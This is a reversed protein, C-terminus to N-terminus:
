GPRTSRSWRAAWVRWERPPYPDNGRVGALQERLLLMALDNSTLIAARMAPNAALSVEPMDDLATRSGRYLCRFLEPRFEACRREDPMVLAV